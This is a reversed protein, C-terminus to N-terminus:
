PTSTARYFRIRENTSLNDPFDFAGTPTNTSFLNTWTPQPLQPSRQITYIEGPQGDLHVIVQPSVAVAPQIRLIGATPLPSRFFRAFVGYQSGDQGFSNWAVACGGDALAAVRPREQDDANQLNVMFPGNRPTGNTDFRQSFVSWDQNTLDSGEGIAQWTAVFQGTRLGAIGGNQWRNSHAGILFEPGAIGNADFVRGFVRCSTSLANTETSCTV